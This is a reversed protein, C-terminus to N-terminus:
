LGLRGRARVNRRGAGRSGYGAGESLGVRHEATIVFMVTLREAGLQVQWQGIADTGDTIVDHHAGVVVLRVASRSGRPDVVQPAGVAVGVRRGEGSGFAFHDLAVREERLEAVPDALDEVVGLAQELDEVAVPLRSLERLLDGAAGASVSLRM